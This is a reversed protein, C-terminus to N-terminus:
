VEDEEEESVEDIDDAEDEEAIAVDAQVLSQFGNEALIVLHRLISEDLRCARDIEAIAGPEAQFQFLTYDGQQRKQIEYALKRTGWRDINVIAGREGLLSEYRKVTEDVSLFILPLL